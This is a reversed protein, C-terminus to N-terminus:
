AAVAEVSNDGNWDNLDHGVCAATAAILDRANPPCVANGIQRAKERKNGLIEYTGPFAMGAAMEHPELM